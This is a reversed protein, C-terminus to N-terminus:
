FRNDRTRIGDKAGTKCAICKHGLPPITSAPSKFDGEKRLAPELGAEPVLKSTKKMIVMTICSVYNLIFILSEM